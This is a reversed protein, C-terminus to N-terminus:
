SGLYGLTRNRFGILMQKDIEKNGIATLCDLYGNLYASVLKEDTFNLDNLCGIILNTINGDLNLGNLYDIIENLLDKM